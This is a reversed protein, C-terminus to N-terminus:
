RTVGNLTRKLYKALTHMLMGHVDEVAEYEFLSAHLTHHCLSKLPGGTFGTLGILTLNPRDQRVFEATHVINPSSGSASILVVAGQMDATTHRRLQDTFVREYGCDNAIATLLAMNSSLSIVHNSVRDNSAGKLHDCAWHQSLAASAGNGATFIPYDMKAMFTLIDAVRALEEVDIGRTASLVNACHSDWIPRLVNSTILTSM